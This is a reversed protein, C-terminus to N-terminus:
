YCSQAAKLLKSYKEIYQDPKNWSRINRGQAFASIYQLTMGVIWQASPKERKIYEKMVQQVFAIALPSNNEVIADVCQHMTKEGHVMKCAILSVGYALESGAGITQNIRSAERAIELYESEHERANEIVQIRTNNGTGRIAQGLNECKEFSLMARSLASIRRSQPMDLFQEARRPTGGDLFDFSSEPVGKILLVKITADAMICASCRTQGNIMYGTDTFIIPDIAQWNWRGNKMDSAYLEVSRQTIKRQKPYNKSLFEQALEPTLYIIESTINSMTDRRQAESGVGSARKTTQQFLYGDPM